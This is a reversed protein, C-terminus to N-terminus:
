RHLSSWFLSVTADVIFELVGHENNAAARVLACNNVTVLGEAAAQSRQQGSAPRRAPPRAEKGHEIAGWSIYKHVTITGDAMHM